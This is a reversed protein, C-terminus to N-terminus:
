ALTSGSNTSNFRELTYTRVDCFRRRGCTQLACCTKPYTHDEALRSPRVDPLNSSAPSLWWGYRLPLTAALRLRTSPPSSRTPGPLPRTWVTRWCGPSSWLWWGSCSSWWRGPRALPRTGPRSRIDLRVTVAFARLYRPRRLIEYRTSYVGNQLNELEWTGGFWCKKIQGHIFERNTYLLYNQNFYNYAWTRSWFYGCFSPETPM